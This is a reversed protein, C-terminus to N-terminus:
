TFSKLRKNIGMSLMKHWKEGQMDLLVTDIRLPNWILCKEHKVIYKPLKYNVYDAGFFVWNDDKLLEETRKFIDLFKSLNITEDYELSGAQRKPNFVRGLDTFQVVYAFPKFDKIEKVRKITNYIETNDVFICGQGFNYAKYKNECSMYAFSRDWPIGIASTIASGFFAVANKESVNYDLNNIFGQKNFNYKLIGRM